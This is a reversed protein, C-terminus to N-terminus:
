LTCNEGEDLEGTPVRLKQRAHGCAAQDLSLLIIVPQGATSAAVLASLAFFVLGTSRRERWLTFTTSYSQRDRGFHQRLGRFTMRCLLTARNRPSMGELGGMVAVVSRRGLPGSCAHECPAAVETEHGNCSRPGLLTEEGWIRWVIAARNDARYGCWLLLAQSQNSVSAWGGM